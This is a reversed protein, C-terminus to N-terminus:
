YAIIDLFVKVQKTAEVMLETMRVYENPSTLSGEILLAGEYLQMISNRLVPDNEDLFPLWDIKFSQCPPLPINAITASCFLNNQVAFKLVEVETGNKVASEARDLLQETIQEELYYEGCSDCVDAPVKKFVITTEGRQLTVTVKDPGTKGQKCIVCEIM